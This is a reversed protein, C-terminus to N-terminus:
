AAVAERVSEAPRDTPRVREHVVTRSRCFYHYDPFALRYDTVTNGRVGARVQDIKLWPKISKVDEPNKAELLEDRLRVMLAIPVIKGDLFTCVESRRDDGITAIRLSKVGAKVYGEVRSMEQSKTVVNASFGQWYSQSQGLTEGLERQFLKGGELRGLTGRFERGPQRSPMTGDIVRRGIEVIKDRLHQDFHSRVWYVNYRDLWEIARRDILNLAPRIGVAEFQATEYAVQILDLLDSQVLATFRVSLSASIAAVANDIDGQTISGQGASLIALSDRLARQSEAEWTMLLIEQLEIVLLEEADGRLMADIRRSELLAILEERNM